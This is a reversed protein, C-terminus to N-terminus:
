KSGLKQKKRKLKPRYQLYVLKCLSFGTKGCVNSLFLVVAVCDVNEGLSYQLKDDNPSAQSTLIRSKGASFESGYGHIGALSVIGEATVVECGAVM